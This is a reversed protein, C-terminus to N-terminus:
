AVKTSNIAPKKQRSHGIGAYFFHTLEKFLTWAVFTPWLILAGAIFAMIGFCAAIAFVSWRTFWNLNPNQKANAFILKYDQVTLM